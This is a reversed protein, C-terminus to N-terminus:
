LPAEYSFSQLIGINNNVEQFCIYYNRISITLSLGAKIGDRAELELTVPIEVGGTPFQTIVVCVEVLEGEAGSLSTM